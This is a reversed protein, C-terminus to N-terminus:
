KQPKNNDQEILIEAGPVPESKDPSVESKVSPSPAPSPMAKKSSEPMSGSKRVSCSSLSILIVSIFITFVIIKKM